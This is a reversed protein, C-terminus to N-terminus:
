PPTEVLCGVGWVLCGRSYVDDWSCAGGPLLCGGPAPVEGPASVGGPGPVGMSFLIVSVQLFMVKECSRKRTTIVRRRGSMKDVLGTIQM